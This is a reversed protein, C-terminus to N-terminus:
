IAFLGNQRTILNLHLFALTQSVKRRATARYFNSVLRDIWIRCTQFWLLYIHDSAFLFQCRVRCVFRCGDGLSSLLVINLHIHELSKTCSISPWVIHRWVFHERWHVIRSPFPWGVYTGFLGDVKGIAQVHICAFFCGDASEFIFLVESVVFSLLINLLSSMYFFLKEQSPHVHLVLINMGIGNHFFLIDYLLVGCRVLSTEFEKCLFLSTRSLNVIVFHHSDNVRSATECVVLYSSM